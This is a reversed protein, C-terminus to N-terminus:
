RFLSDLLTYINFADNRSPCKSKGIDDRVGKDPRLLRRTILPIAEPLFVGARAPPALSIARAIVNDKHSDFLVSM